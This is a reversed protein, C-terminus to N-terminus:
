SVHKCYNLVEQIFIKIPKQNCLQIHPSDTVLVWPYGLDQCKKMEGDVGESDEWRHMLGGHCLQQLICLDMYLIQETTLYGLKSCMQVPTEVEGPCYFEVQPYTKRLWRVNEIAIASNANQYGYEGDGKSGLKGRMPHALYIKPKNM